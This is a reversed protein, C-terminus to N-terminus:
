FMYCLSVQAVSNKIENNDSVKSVGWNYRAQVSFNSAFFFESGVAFGIDYTNSEFGKFNESENILLGLQPGGHINFGDTFYIKAMVPVTLYNLKYNEGDNRAGQVSYLLEPQVSVANLVHIEAVFGGHFNTLVNFSDADSGNFNAFNFGAKVGFAQANTATISGIFLLTTLLLKRM